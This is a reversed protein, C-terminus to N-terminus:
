SSNPSSASFLLFYNAYDLKSEELMDLEERREKFREVSFRHVAQLAITFFHFFIAPNKLLFKEAQSSVM